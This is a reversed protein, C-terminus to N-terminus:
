KGRGGRGGGMGRGRTNGRGSKNWLHPRFTGRGRGRGRGRSPHGHFNSQSSHTDRRPLAVSCGDVWDQHLKSHDVKKKKNPPGAALKPLNIYRAGEDSIDKDMVSAMTEYAALLPHVTDRGWLESIENAKDDDLMPGLGLMRNPCIVRFNVTRRTFLSDRIFERLKFVNSGLCPLYSSSSYNTHHDPNDCCPKLWYRALPTLILKRLQGMAKFLPALLGVMEKIAEKDAVQLSGTIHYHGYQDKEPLYRVGGPGGIQYVSNDFLQLIVTCNEQVPERLETELKKVLGAVSNASIRFGPKCLNVIDFKDQDLQEGIHKLHSSGLLLLRHKPQDDTVFVDGEMFRDIVPQECLGTAYIENLDHILSLVLSCESEENLPAAATLNSFGGSTYTGLERTSQSVPLRLIHKCDNGHTRTRILSDWLARTATIDNNLESTSAIWQNIEAMTRIASINSTGGILFPVGHAVRVGGAFTERLRINANVFEKAYEATGIMAMSSASAMVM